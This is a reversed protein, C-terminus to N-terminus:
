ITGIHSLKKEADVPLFAGVTLRSVYFHINYIYFIYFSICICM